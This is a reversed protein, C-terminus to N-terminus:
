TKKELEGENYFNANEKCPNYVINKEYVIRKEDLNIM